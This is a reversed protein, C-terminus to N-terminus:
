TFIYPQIVRICSAYSCPCVQGLLACLLLIWHTQLNAATAWIICSSHHMDSSIM